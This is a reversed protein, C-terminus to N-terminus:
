ELREATREHASQVVRPAHVHEGRRGGGKWLYAEGELLEHASTVVRASRHGEPWLPTFSVYTSQWQNGSIAVSQWQNGGALTSDLKRVNIAVSQWQNGSIAEPWLPTFSVYTGCLAGCSAGCRHASARQHGRIGGCSAGCRIRQCGLSERAHKHTADMHERTSTGRLSGRIVVSSRQHGRLSGRIVESSRQHGRLSGRLSGRLPAEAESLPKQKQSVAESPEGAPWTLTRHHHHDGDDPGRPHRPRPIVESQM